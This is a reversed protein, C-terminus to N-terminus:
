KRVRSWAPETDDYEALRPRVADPILQRVAGTELTAVFIRRTAPYAGGDSFVVESGDPSWDPEAPFRGPREYHVVPSGGGSPVSVLPGWGSAYLIRSGDPSWVVRGWAFLSTEVLRPESAGDANMTAVSKYGDYGGYLWFAIRRGDPSWNPFQVSEFGYGPANNFPKAWAHSLLLRQGSGDDNIVLIGGDAPDAPPWPLSSYFSLRGDPSWNPAFGGAVARQGSGDANMIWIRGPENLAAQRIFAIRRGDWSWAPSRGSTLEVVNSGDADAVYIHPSGNRTSVFAIAPDNPRAVPPAERDLAAPDGDCASFSLAVTALAITTLAIRPAM